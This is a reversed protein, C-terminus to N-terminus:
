SRHVRGVSQDARRAWPVGAVDDAGRGTISPNIAAQLDAFLKTLVAPPKSTVAPWFREFDAESMFVQFFKAALETESAGDEIAALQDFLRTREEVSEPIPVSIPPNLPIVFPAPPAYDEGLAERCYQAWPDVAPTIKETSM